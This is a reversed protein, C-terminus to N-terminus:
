IRSYSRRRRRGGAHKSARWCTAHPKTKRSSPTRRCSGRLEFNPHTFGDDAFAFKSCLPTAGFEAIHRIASLNWSLNTLALAVDFAGSFGKVDAGPKFAENLADAAFRDAAAERAKQKTEDLNSAHGGESEKLHGPDGHAVHGVEHLLMFALAATGDIAKMTESRKPTAISGNRSSMQSCLICDCAYPVMVMFLPDSEAILYIRITKKRGGAEPRWSGTISYGSASLIASAKAAAAEPVDRGATTESM